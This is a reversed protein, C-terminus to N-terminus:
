SDGLWGGDRLEQIMVDLMNMEMNQEQGEYLKKAKEYYEYMQLYDRDANEKMQQRDAELYALRMYVEYREPYDEAMKLLTDEAEDFRDMNEYLIAINQQLQYTVYGSDYVRQFMTLAKEYYEDAHAEDAQAKRVYAGALSEELALMDGGDFLGLNQELLTIEKDATDDGMSRYVDSCLLLARKKMNKDGTLSVAQELNEAAEEYQGKVHAIEGEAMYISDQTIRLAIGKDLQEQAEEVQGLKALTIAYDRYYLGNETHYQLAYELFKRANPYDETEYCANGMIYYINAYREEDEESQLEFPVTNLYTEGQRICEEYDGRLYLMHIEEEYAEVRIDSIIKAGSLAEVADDYNGLGIADEAQRILNYYATNQEVRMRYLGTFILLIGLALSGLAAIRIGTQRRHMVIYRQDLKHCNRVAKLYEKGDAYREQPPLAMMKELIIAFGESVQRNAEGIPIRQKFDAPPEIGTLMYYLTVGLSYIDSRANIGKGFFQTYETLSEKNLTGAYQMHSSSNMEESKWLHETRKGDEASLLETRDDDEGFLLQTKDDGDVALLETRDDEVTSLLETKDEEETFHPEANKKEKRTAQEKVKGTMQLSKQQTYNHTIRAYMAPDRYQEPPSFGASIGVASEMSEGMALSINFDILCVDGEETLMINAPKIDSHIIPPQQSHLYDLAEGLQEAWKKVQKQSFKGHRKVADELNEGRIYDMVTYIGDETEIFDYVRPLYPHKLNKLIDAEKRSEVRGRVDDKIKKVVVDTQLRLHRALFVVGGGGSGIEGVIEYTGGLVMGKELTDM